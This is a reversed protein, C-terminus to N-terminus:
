PVTDAQWRAVAELRAQSWFREADDPTWRGATACRELAQRLAAASAFRDGPAKELCRM